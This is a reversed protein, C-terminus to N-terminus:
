CNDHPNREERSRTFYNLATEIQGAFAAGEGSAVLKELIADLEGRATEDGALIRTIQRFGRCMLRENSEDTKRYAEISLDFRGLAEAHDGRALHHCALMWLARAEALDGRGLDRALDLNMRAAELGVELEAPGIGIGPEDWGPWTFSAMNYCIGKVAHGDDGKGHLAVGRRGYKLARPLDQRVWYFHLLLDACLGILAQRDGIADLFRDLAEDGASGFCELARDKLPTEDTM